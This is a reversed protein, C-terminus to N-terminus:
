YGVWINISITYMWTLAIEKANHCMIYTEVVYYLYTMDM